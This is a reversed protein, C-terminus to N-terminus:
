PAIAGDRTSATDPGSGSSHVASTALFVILLLAFWLYEHAARSGHADFM